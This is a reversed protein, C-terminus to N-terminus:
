GNSLPAFKLTIERSGVDSRWWYVLYVFIDGFSRKGTFMQMILLKEGNKGRGKLANLHVNDAYIIKGGIFDLWHKDPRGNLRTLRLM